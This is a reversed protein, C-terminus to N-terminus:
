VSLLYILYDWYRYAFAGLPKVLLENSHKSAGNEAESFSGLINTFIHLQSFLSTIPSPPMRDMHYRAPPSCCAKSDPCQRGVALFAVGPM